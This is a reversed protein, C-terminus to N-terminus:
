QICGRLLIFMSSTFLFCSFPPMKGDKKNCIFYDFVIIIYQLFIEKDGDPISLTLYVVAAPALCDLFGNFSYVGGVNYMNFALIFMAFLQNRRQHVYHVFGMFQMLPLLVLLIFGMYWSRLDFGIWARMQMLMYIFVFLYFIKSTSKHCSSYVSTKNYDTIYTM